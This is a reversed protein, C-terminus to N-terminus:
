FDRSVNRFASDVTYKAGDQLYVLELKNYIDGNDAVQGDLVTGPIICFVIPITGDPCFCIASMVYHNHM